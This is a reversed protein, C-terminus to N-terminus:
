RKRKLKDSQAKNKEDKEIKTTVAQCFDFLAADTEEVLNRNGRNRNAHCSHNVYHQNYIRNVVSTILIHLGIELVLWQKCLIDM